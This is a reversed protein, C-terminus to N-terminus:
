LIATVLEGPQNILKDPQHENLIQSNNYGWSVSVIKVGAHHAAIIDRTEDGVYWCDKPDLNNQRIVKKLSRAKGFLGVSGYVKVFLNTIQHGDLFIRINKESNTSMIYLQHGEANLHEIIDTIGPHAKITPMMKSMIRRGKFLLFPMEWSRVHIEEAAQILTMGRLREIEQASIHQNRKKLHQFIQIIAEFSDAITGDFDFIIASM